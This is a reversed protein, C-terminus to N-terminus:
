HYHLDRVPDILLNHVPDFEYLQPSLGNCRIFRDLFNLLGPLVGEKRIAQLAYVSCSPTFTCHSGDQSSIFSKYFLFLGSFILDYESSVERAFKYEETDFRQGLSRLANLDTGTQGSLKTFVLLFLLGTIFKIKM